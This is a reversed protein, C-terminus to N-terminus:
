MKGCLNLYNELNFVFSIFFFLMDTRLTEGDVSRM